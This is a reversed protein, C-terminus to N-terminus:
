RIMSASSSSASPQGDRPVGAVQEGTAEEGTSEAAARAGAARRRLRLAAALLATLLPVTWVWLHPWDLLLSRGGQPPHRSWFEASAGPLVLLGLLGTGAFAGLATLGARIRGTLLLYPILLAPTLTIGAATGLAFGKGLAGRPRHLDWLVPCALALAIQGSLPTQFLPELWLGAVTATLVAGPRARLGSLRCSM